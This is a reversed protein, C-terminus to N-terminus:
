WTKAKDEKKPSLSFKRQEKNYKKVPKELVDCHKATREDASCIPLILSKEMAEQKCQSNVPKIAEESDTCVIGSEEQQHGSIVHERQLSDSTL